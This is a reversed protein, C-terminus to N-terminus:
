YFEYTLFLFDSLEKFNSYMEVITCFHTKFENPNPLSLEPDEFSENFNSLDNSIDEVISVAICCAGVFLCILAMVSYYM